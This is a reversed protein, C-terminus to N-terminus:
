KVESGVKYGLEFAKLNLMETGKPIKSLIAKEMHDKEVVNTLAVVAGTVIVSTTVALGIEKEALEIFPIKIVKKGDDKLNTVLNEEVIVLTDDKLDKYYLDYPKQAMAFFLDLKTGKQFLIENDSMIVDVKTPGGRVQSTYTPSQVAEKGKMIAAAALFSGATIIGQGGIACFRAEYHFSM